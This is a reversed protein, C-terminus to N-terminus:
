IYSTVDVDIENSDNHFAGQLHLFWLIGAEEQGEEEEERGRRDGQHGQWVQFPDQSAHSHCM